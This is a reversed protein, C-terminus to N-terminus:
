GISKPSQKWEDEMAPATKDMTKHDAALDKNANDIRELTAMIRSFHERTYTGELYVVDGHYIEIGESV